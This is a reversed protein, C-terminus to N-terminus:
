TPPLAAVAPDPNVRPQADLWRRRCIKSFTKQYVLWFRSIKIQNHSRVMKRFIIAWDTFLVIAFIWHLPWLRMLKQSAEELITIGSEEGLIELFASFIIDWTCVNKLVAYQSEVLEVYNKQFELIM